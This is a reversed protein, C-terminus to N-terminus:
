LATIEQESLIPECEWKEEQIKRCIKTRAISMIIRTGNPTYKFENETYEKKGAGFARAAALFQEKEYFFLFVHPTNDLEVEPSALMRDVSAKLQKAYEHSKM